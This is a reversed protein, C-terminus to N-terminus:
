SQKQNVLELCKNKSEDNGGRPMWIADLANGINRIVPLKGFVQDGTM